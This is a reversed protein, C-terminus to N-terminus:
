LQLLGELEGANHQFHCFPPLNRFIQLSKRQNPVAGIGQLGLVVHSFASKPRIIVDRFHRM